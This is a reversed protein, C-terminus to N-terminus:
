LHLNTQLEFAQLPVVQCRKKRDKVIKMILVMPTLIIIAIISSKVFVMLLEIYKRTRMLEAIMDLGNAVECKMFYDCQDCVCDDTAFMNYILDEKHIFKPDVTDFIHKMYFTRNETSTLNEHLLIMLGQENSNESILRCGWFVYLRDEIQHLLHFQNWIKTSNCKVGPVFDFKVNFNTSLNYGIVNTMYCQKFEDENKKCSIIIGMSFHQYGGCVVSFTSCDPWEFANHFFNVTHNSTPLNALILYTKLGRQCAFHQPRKPQPCVGDYFLGMTIGIFATLLLLSTLGKQHM